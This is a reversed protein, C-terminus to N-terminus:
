SQKTLTSASERKLIIDREIRREQDFHDRELDLSTIVNIAGFYQALITIDPCYNYGMRITFFGITYLNGITGPGPLEPM